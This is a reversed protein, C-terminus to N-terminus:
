ALKLLAVAMQGTQEIQTLDAGRTAIINVSYRTTPKMTVNNLNM